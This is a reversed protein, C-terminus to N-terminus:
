NRTNIKGIKTVLTIIALILVHYFIYKTIIKNPMDPM